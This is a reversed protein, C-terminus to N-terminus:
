GSLAADERGAVIRCAKRDSAMSAILLGERTRWLSM